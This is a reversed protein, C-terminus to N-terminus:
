TNLYFLIYYSSNAGFPILCMIKTVILMCTIFLKPVCIFNNFITGLKAKGPKTGLHKDLNDPYFVFTTFNFISSQFKNDKSYNNKFNSLDSLKIM